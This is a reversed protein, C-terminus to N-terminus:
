RDRTNSAYIGDIAQNVWKPTIWSKLIITDSFRLFSFSGTSKLFGNSFLSASKSKSLMGVGVFFCLFTFRFSLIGLLAFWVTAMNTSLMKRNWRWLNSMDWSYNILPVEDYMRTTMNPSLMRRKTYMTFKLTKFGMKMPRVYRM